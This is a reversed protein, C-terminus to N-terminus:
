GSETPTPPRRRYTPRHLLDIRSDKLRQVALVDIVAAARQPDVEGFQARQIHLVVVVLASVEGSGVQRGSFQVGRSGETLPGDWCGGGCIRENLELTNLSTFVVRLSTKM